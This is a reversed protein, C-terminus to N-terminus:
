MNRGRADAIKLKRLTRSLDELDVAEIRDTTLSILRLNVYLLSLEPSVSAKKDIKEDDVLTLLGERPDRKIDAMIAMIHRDDIRTQRIAVDILSLARTMEGLQDGEFEQFALLLLCFLRRRHASAARFSRVLKESSWTRSILGQKLNKNNLVSETLETRLGVTLEIAAVRRCFAQFKDQGAIDHACLLDGILFQADPSAAKGKEALLCEVIAPAADPGRAEFADLIREHLMGAQTEVQVLGGVVRNLGVVVGTPDRRESTARFWAELLRCRRQAERQHTLLFAISSLTFERRATEEDCALLRQRFADSRLWNWRRPYDMGSRVWGLLMDRVSQSDDNGALWTALALSNIDCPPVEDDCRVLYDTIERAEQIQQESGPALVRYLRLWDAHELVHPYAEAGPRGDAEDVADLEEALAQLLEEAQEARGSEPALRLLVLSRYFGHLHEGTDAPVEAGRSIRSLNIKLLPQLHAYVDSVDRTVASGRLSSPLWKVRMPIAFKGQRHLIQLQTVAGILRGSDADLDSM